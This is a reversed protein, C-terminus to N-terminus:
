AFLRILRPVKSNDLRIKIRTEFESRLEYEIPTTVPKSPVLKRLRTRRKRPAVEPLLSYVRLRSVVPGSCRASEIPVTRRSSTRSSVSRPDGSSRAIGTEEHKGGESRACKTTHCMKDRTARCWARIRTIIDTCQSKNPSPCMVPMVLPTATASIRTGPSIYWMKALLVLLGSLVALRHFM